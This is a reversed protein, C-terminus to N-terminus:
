KKPQNLSFTAIKEGNYIYLLDQRLQLNVGLIEKYTLPAFTGSDKPKYHLQTTTMVLLNENDQVIINGESIKFVNILGGYINYQIVEKDTLIFIYNFNSAFDKVEDSLPQSIETRQKTSYDYLEIQHTDTNLLWLRNNGANRAAGTNFFEPLDNFNIREIESFRNDLFVVTNFDQYYVVVKLPNLIDVFTVDGLQIDSFQFTGNLGVKLVINDKVSYINNYSDLGYFNDISVSKSEQLTLEQGLCSVSILIFFVVQKMDECSVFHIIEGVSQLM